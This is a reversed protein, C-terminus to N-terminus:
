EEIEDVIPMIGTEHFVMYARDVLNPLSIVADTGQRANNVITESMTVVMNVATAAVLTTVSEKAM